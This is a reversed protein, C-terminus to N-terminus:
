KVTETLGHKRILPERQTLLEIVGSPPYMHYYGYNDLLDDLVIGNDIIASFAEPTAARKIKMLMYSAFEIARSREEAGDM